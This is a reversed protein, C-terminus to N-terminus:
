KQEREKASFLNCARDKLRIDTAVSSSIGMKRCKYHAHGGSQVRICYKCDKCIHEDYYGASRRFKSKISCM